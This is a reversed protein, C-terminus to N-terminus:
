PYVLRYFVSGNTVIVPLNIQNTMTVLNSSVDTWNSGALNTNMLLRWGTHDAPWALQLQSGNATANVQPQSTVVVAVNTLVIQKGVNALAGRWGHRRDYAELGKMLSIRAQTQLRSDLTTRM